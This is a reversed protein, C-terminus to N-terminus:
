NIIWLKSVRKQRRKKSEMSLHFHKWAAAFRWDNVDVKIVVQEWIFKCALVLDISKKKGPVKVTFNKIRWKKLSM